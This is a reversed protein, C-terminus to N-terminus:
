ENIKRRRFFLFWLLGVVLVLSGFIYVYFIYNVRGIIKLRVDESFVGGDYHLIIKVDVEGKVLDSGDFSAVLVKKEWRGLNVILSDFSVGSDVVVVKAYVEKMNDDWLSEVEVEFRGIELEVFEDSYDLVRVAFEGLRFVNEARAIGNGYDVSAVAVYDGASYNSTDLSINFDLFGSVGITVEQGTQHRLSDLPTGEFVEIMEDGDYIEIRPKIGVVQKGLNFMGLSIYVVEGVNVNPASLDLGVYRDPYPVSVKIAGCVDVGDGRACVFIHNVGPSESESPLNLVAVVSERGSISDKDLSVYEALDGEVYLDAVVGYDLVFDFVFEGSYGLAFDVEHSGPVVGSVAFVGSCLFILAVFIGILKMEEVEEEFVLVM